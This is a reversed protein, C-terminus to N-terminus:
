QQINRVSKDEYTPGIGYKKSAKLIEKKLEDM